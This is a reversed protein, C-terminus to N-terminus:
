HIDRTKSRGEDANKPRIKSFSEESCSPGDGAARSKFADFDSTIQVCFILAVTMRLAKECGLAFVLLFSTCKSSCVVHM